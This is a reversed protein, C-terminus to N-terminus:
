SQLKNERSQLQDILPDIQAEITTKYKEQPWLSKHIYQVYYIRLWTQITYTKKYTGFNRHKNSM